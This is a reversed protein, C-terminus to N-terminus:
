VTANEKDTQISVFRVIIRLGDVASLCSRRPLDLFVSSRKDVESSEFRSSCDYHRSTRKGGNGLVATSIEEYIRENEFVDSKKAGHALQREIIM